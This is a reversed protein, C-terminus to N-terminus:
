LERILATLQDIKKASLPKFIKEAAQEFSITADALLQEGPRSLKVLSVRADRPNAEKKVLRNKEMPNLLRTVGSASLGVHEALDIRRMCKNPKGNLYYMVQFESFSIGHVYLCQDIQRLMQSQLAALSLILDKTLMEM